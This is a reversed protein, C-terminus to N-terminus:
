GGQKNKTKLTNKQVYLVDIARGIHTPEDAAVDYGVGGIIWGNEKFLQRVEGLIDDIKDANENLTYYNVSFSWVFSIADNDYHAGDETRDNWFTFFNDPYAQGENLSGQLFIPLGFTELLAIFQERM